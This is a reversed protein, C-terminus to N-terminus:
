LAEAAFYGGTASAMSSRAYERLSDLATRKQDAGKQTQEKENM